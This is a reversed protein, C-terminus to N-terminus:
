ILLFGGFVSWKTKMEVVEKKEKGKEGEEM